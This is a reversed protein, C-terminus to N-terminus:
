QRWLGVRTCHIGPFRDQLVLGGLRINFLGGRPPPIFFNPRTGLHGFPASQLDAPEAKAPEFGAAGMHNYICSKAANQLHENHGAAVESVDNEGRPSVIAQSTFGANAAGSEAGRKEVIEGDGGGNLLRV